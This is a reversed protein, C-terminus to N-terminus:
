DILILTGHGTRYWDCHGKYPPDYPPNVWRFLWKADKNRMNVCGHSMKNGFNNHWYTGHFAVGTDYIFFTAWPVGPLTYSGPAGTAVVLGMHKSPYKSTVRFAGQPTATAKPNNLSVEKFGLGSSITTQYVPQDYEYATLTQEQLSVEVRKEEPPVQISLPLYESEPILRLHKAPVYYILSDFLQSTLQYWREGDPGTKTDTVWHTTEYYLRYANRWTDPPIFALANTYPVTIEALQGCEPIETHPSNLRYRTPQVFAGPLYGGWVRYWHEPTPGTGPIDLQYYLYLLEDFRTSRIVRSDLDPAEHISITKDDAAIRGIAGAAAGINKPNSVHKRFPAPLGLGVLGLLSLRLFGKRSLPPYEKMM